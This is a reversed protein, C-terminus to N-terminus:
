NLPTRALGAEEMKQRLDAFYDTLQQSSKVAARSCSDTSCGGGTGCSSCGGSSSGCGAKGCGGPAPVEAGAGRSLDLLRVALGTEAALEDLLPTADCEAWPLAQLIATGDLTIEFDVFALPLQLESACAEAKALMAQARAELRACEAEDHATAVRHIEGDDFLTTNTSRPATAILVEGLEIGRPTRLVVREGRVLALTSPFRDVFGLRGFQILYVSTVPM